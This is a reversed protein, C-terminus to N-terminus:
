VQIRESKGYGIALSRFVRGMEHQLSNLSCAGLNYIGLSKLTLNTRSRPLASVQSVFERRDPHVYPPEATGYQVAFNVPISATPIDLMLVAERTTEREIGLFVMLGLDLNTDLYKSRDYCPM